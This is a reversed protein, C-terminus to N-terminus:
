NKFKSLTKKKVKKKLTHTHIPPIPIEIATADTYNDTDDAATDKETYLGKINGIVNHLLNNLLTTHLLQLEEQLKRFIKM